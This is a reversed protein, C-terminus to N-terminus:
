GTPRGNKVLHKNTCFPCPGKQSTQFTQWCIQGEVDGVLNRLHQNIFFIEFTEMDAVYISSEVSNMVTAFREHSEM